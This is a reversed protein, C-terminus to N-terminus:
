KCESDAILYVGEQIASFVAISCVVIATYKLEVFSITFPLLFLLLGTAKNMITHFSIFQKKSVYGWIINSIKIVAIVGGWIWLWQPVHIVPLLKFLSVVVFILDAITDLQSGFKSTSNTKRAITGDIMDSFGCLVYTIYFDLSFAPFFLLLISGFIRCGTLINAIHKAM